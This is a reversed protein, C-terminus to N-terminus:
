RSVLHQILTPGSDVVNAWYQNLMLVITQTGAFVLLQGLASEISPWRRRRQGTM